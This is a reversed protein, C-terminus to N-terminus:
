EDYAPKQKLNPSVIIVHFDKLSGTVAKSHHGRKQLSFFFLIFGKNISQKAV